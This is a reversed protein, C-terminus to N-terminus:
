KDSKGKGYPDWKADRAPDYDPNPTPMQAGVERRWAALKRKLSEVVAAHSRALNTTEGIDQRLNYLELRGDDYFEILRWDGSRIAGYPTAGQGHYHPYHWYIADRRLTGRQRLLPELSEGDVIQRPKPSAGALALITPYLDGTMVPVDCTTAPSVIGPARILLPVRVGGEYASGKGARLPTNKTMALLGGNDSTVIVVTKEALHLEDLKALVRGVSQDVSDIMAAYTPHSHAAGPVVKRRYKEVLEKRAQIPTHVAHHPLYLFFPRDKNAEIFRVAELSERDTLYEGPEGDPLTSMRYPSFYSAPTGFETGIARDFGQKDPSFGAGGLHWKGIAATAYGAERLAEALTWEELPLYKTWDPMALKAHPRPRGPIFDTIHLRAPYKGTLLSARTPSCVNAASYAQSFKMGQAALRDINPTEYFTSGMGGFDTWGLDDLLVVVVNPRSSHAPQAGSAASALCASLASWRLLLSIFRPSSNLTMRM